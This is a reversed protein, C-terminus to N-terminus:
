RWGRIGEKVNTGINGEIVRATEGLSRCLKEELLEVQIMSGYNWKLGQKSM